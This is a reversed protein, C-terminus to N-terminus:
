RLMTGFPEPALHNAMTGDGGFHCTWKGQLGLSRVVGGGIFSTSPVEKIGIGRVNEGAAGYNNGSSNLIRRQM